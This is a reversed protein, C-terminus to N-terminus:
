TTRPLGAPAAARLERRDAGPEGSEAPPARCNRVIATPVGGISPNGADETALLAHLREVRRELEGSALLDLYGPQTM